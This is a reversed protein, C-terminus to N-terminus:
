RVHILCSRSNTLIAGPHSPLPTEIKERTQYLFRQHFVHSFVNCSCFCLCHASNALGNNSKNSTCISFRSVDEDSSPPSSPLFLVLHELLHSSSLTLPDQLSFTKAKCSHVKIPSILYIDLLHLCTSPVRLPNEKTHAHVCQLCGCFM